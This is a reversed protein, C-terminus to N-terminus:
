NFSFTTVSDDSTGEGGGVILVRKPPLASGIFAPHVLSEHYKEEDMVNSQIVGDLFLSRSTNSEFDDEQPDHHDWISIHQYPSQVEFVKRKYKHVSMIEAPQIQAEMEANTSKSSQGRPMISYTSASLSGGYQEIVYDLHEQLNVGSGCAFVDILATGHEPRTHISLHSEAVVAVVSVGQPVRRYSEIGVLTMKTEEIINLTAQRLFKEDNLKEFSGGVMDLLLHQGSAATMQSDPPPVTAVQVQRLSSRDQPTLLLFTHLNTLSILLSITATETFNFKFKGVGLYCCHRSATFVFPHHNLSSSLIFSSPLRFGSGM